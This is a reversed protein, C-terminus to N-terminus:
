SKTSIFDVYFIKPVLYPGFDPGFSPKWGNEWTQNMIKGQFQMCYYSSNIDLVLYLYFGYFSKSPPPLNPGFTPKFSPKKGIKWTQNM